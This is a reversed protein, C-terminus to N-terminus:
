AGFEQSLVKQVSPLAKMTEIFNKIGLYSDLNIKFHPMWSLVVFLYFDPLSLENGMLYKNNQLQQNVFDIKKLLAPMFVTQKIEDPIASMFFPTCGKHLDTSIYNLWELVRYRKFQDAAPLLSYAKAHEALYVEIVLNETLVKGDDLVLTPVCGKPNIKLFDEGFETKKSALDVSIFECPLKIEEIIMKVAMSCAGKSYYLKM